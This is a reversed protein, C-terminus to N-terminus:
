EGTGRLGDQRGGTLVGIVPEGRWSPMKGPRFLRPIQIKETMRFRKMASAKAAVTTKHKAARAVKALKAALNLRDQTVQYIWEAASIKDKKALRQIKRYEVPTVAAYIRHTRTQYAMKTGRNSTIRMSTSLKVARLVKEFFTNSETNCQDLRPEDSM